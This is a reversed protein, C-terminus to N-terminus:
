DIDDVLKILYRAGALLLVDMEAVDTQIVAGSRIKAHPKSSVPTDSMTGEVCFPCGNLVSRRKMEMHRVTNKGAM